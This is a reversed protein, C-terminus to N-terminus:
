GTTAIVYGSTVVLYVSNDVLYGIILFSVCTLNSM